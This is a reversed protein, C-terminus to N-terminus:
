IKFSNVKAKLVLNYHFNDVMGYKKNWIFSEGGKISRYGENNHWGDDGSLSKLWRIMLGQYDEHLLEIKKEHHIDGLHWERFYTRGWAEPAKDQM